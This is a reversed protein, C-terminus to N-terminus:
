VEIELERLRLQLGRKSVKLHDAMRQIEGDFARATERLEQAGLDNATRLDPSRDIWAYVTKRSVGMAKATPGIRWRNSSLVAELDDARTEPKAAAVRSGARDLVRRVGPADVRARPEGRSALVLQRVVNRLQRVNGPWACAMLRIVFSAPLWPVEDPGPSRLRDREGVADLEQELLHVLLRGIDDRRARLPRIAIESGALRHYLPGRFRHEDVALDLDEDTAAVVRIDRKRPQSGGIPQVEGTELVRLLLAQIDLDSAGIEDLFLTGHDARGFYGPRDGEAGTFAGRTHGFLEAAATSQPIAAMNVAVFPGSRGSRDHLARAILEKGTGTEGTLLVPVDLDAVADISRRVEDLADSEGVLGLSPIRSRAPPRLTHLLLVCRKNLVIVVGDDLAARSLHTRGSRHEGDIQVTTSSADSRVTVGGESPELWVPSRSLFQAGLPAGEPGDDAFFDPEARSLAVTQGANLVALRVRDGVRSLDPLYLITLAPVLIDTPRQGSGDTAHM